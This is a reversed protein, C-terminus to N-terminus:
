AALSPRAAYGPARLPTPEACTIKHVFRHRADHYVSGPSFFNQWMHTLEEARYQALPKAGEDAERSQRKIAVLNAYDPRAVLARVRDMLEYEFASRSNGFADDLFGIRIAEATGLPECRETLELAKKRGVRRPLTYTWYESGYLGMSKYHPNLVVGRAAFVQDAALALMAGGAGANGRLGCVLLRDTTNLMELVLDDM